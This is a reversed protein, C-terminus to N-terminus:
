REKFILDAIEDGFYGSLFSFIEVNSMKDNLMRGIRRGRRFLKGAMSEYLDPRKKLLRRIAPHVYNNKMFDKLSPGDFFRVVIRITTYEFSHM